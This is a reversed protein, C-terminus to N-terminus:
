KRRNPIVKDALAPNEACLTDFERMGIRMLVDMEKQLAPDNQMASTLSRMGLTINQNATEIEASQAAPTSLFQALTAYGTAVAELSERYAPLRTAAANFDRTITKFLKQEYAIVDPDNFHSTM